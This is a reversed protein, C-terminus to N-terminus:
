QNIWVPEWRLAWRLLPLQTAKGRIKLSLGWWLRLERWLRPKKHITVKHLEGQRLVTVSAPGQPCLRMEWNNHTEEWLNDKRHRPRWTPLGPNHWESSLGEPLQLLPQGASAVQLHWTMSLKHHTKYDAWWVTRVLLCNCIQKVHM